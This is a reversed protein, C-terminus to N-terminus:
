NKRLGGKAINKGRPDRETPLYLIWDLYILIQRYFLVNEHESKTSGHKRRQGATEGKISFSCFYTCTHIKTINTLTM